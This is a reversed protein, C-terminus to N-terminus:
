KFDMVTNVRYKTHPQISVGIKDYSSSLCINRHGLSPVDKDILLHLIILAPDNYGYDCCEGYFDSVCNKRREHGVYGDEGATKAHCFASNYAERDPMLVQPKPALQQLSTILSKFYYDRKEPAIYLECKPNLLVTKLYLQPSMRVMNLVWIVNKEDESLFNSETATNCIKYKTDNWSQSYKALPNVKNNTKVDQVLTAYGISFCFMMIFSALFIKQKLFSLDM